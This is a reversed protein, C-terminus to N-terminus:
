FIFDSEFLAITSDVNSITISGSGGLADLGIFLATGFASRAGSHEMDNVSNISFARLDIVDLGLQFDTIVDDGAKVGFVFVDKGSGGTLIDDGSDGDLTDRGNGADLADDGKGGIM